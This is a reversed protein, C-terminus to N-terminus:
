CILGLPGSRSLDLSGAPSGLSNTFSPSPTVLLEHALIWLDPHSYPTLVRLLGTKPYAKRVDQVTPRLLGYCSMPSGTPTWYPDVFYHPDQLPGPNWLPGSPEFPDLPTWQLLRSPDVLITLVWLADSYGLILLGFIM